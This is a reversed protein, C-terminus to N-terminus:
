IFDKFLKYLIKIKAKTPIHDYHNIIPHLLVGNLLNILSPDRYLVQDLKIECMLM